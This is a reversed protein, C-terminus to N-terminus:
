KKWADYQSQFEALVDQYGAEDLASQYEAIFDDVDQTRKSVDKNIRSTIDKYEDPHQYKLWYNEMESKISYLGLRHALPIFIFMTESLLRDRKKQSMTDLMRCEQLRDAMKILLVRVDDGLTLLVKKFNETQRESEEDEGADSPAETSALIKNINQLGEVLQAIKDGFHLRIDDLTYYLNGPVDMLLAACISKYGLGVKEVVIRAVDICTLIYPEGTHSLVNRHADLAIEYAKRVAKLENDDQCRKTALAMLSQFETNVDRNMM